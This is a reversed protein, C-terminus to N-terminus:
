WIKIRDKEAIYMKDGPQVDFAQYFPTFNMLPGVVRWQAPSHPDLNIRQRITADTYKSRWIQALSLFFRQDPTYGDIKKNGKGQETMKFADYAISVGGFDAINEGTTLQGNVHLSDLMTFGDYLKQIEKVKVDFKAKDEANWWNKINGFKDFQSGQDDFGHTMEHGIVMGIGGYNIADDADKDFFPFQLIGAPFVIENVTPNYYANITPPTMGWLTKDVPKDLFSLNYNFDNQNASVINEFYTAKNIAVKSYDRWKDPYGIKRIISQLKDQAIKKTSDSMWDLHQIHKAFSKELNSVLVDMRQKAAPPFFKKVYLQGLAEGLHGDTSSTIREWRKKQVSQGSIAKSYEFAADEFPKSLIGAYNGIVNAAMYVKWDAIPIEKLLANLTDYYAPEGMNVYQTNAGITRFFIDWSINPQSKEIDAIALKNYMAQVDRLQVRTKHSAALRTEIGYIIATNKQATAADVNTLQFLTTLYKKYADQIKVSNPDKKFYYDRDPLGLGTQSVYAINMSSNKLDASVGFSILTGNGNKEEEGVFAILSPLDTIADIKALIPKIPSYGRKNILATDMGSAYFDGVKQENSGAKAHSKQATELLNKLKLKTDDALKNFGGVAVKDSPIKVTDLWIGNAYQYFNNSPKVAKDIYQTDLFKKGKIEQASANNSGATIGCLTAASFLSMKFKNMRYDLHNFFYLNCPRLFITVVVM